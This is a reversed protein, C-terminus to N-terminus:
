RTLKVLSNTHITEIFALVEDAPLYAKGEVLVADKWLDDLAQKNTKM